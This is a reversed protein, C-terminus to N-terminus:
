EWQSGSTELRIAIEQAIGHFLTSFLVRFDPELKGGLLAMRHLHNM